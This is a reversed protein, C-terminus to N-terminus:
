LIRTVIPYVSIDEFNLPITQGVSLPTFDFVYKKTDIKRSKIKIKLYVDFLKPDRTLFVNGWQDIVTREAPSKTIEVIEAQVKGQNDRVQKGVSLKDAIFDPVGYTDSYNRSDYRIQTELINEEDTVNVGDLFGPFDVVMVEARVNSFTFFHTEGFVIPRGKFSYTKTRPNFVVELKIDLYVVQKEPNINYSEVNIIEAVKKGLSGIESDGRQFALAFNNSPVNDAYLPNNDTVKYRVVITTVERKLFFVILFIAFFFLGIFAIDFYNIKKYFHIKSLLSQMSKNKCVRM